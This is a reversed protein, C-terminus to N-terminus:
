NHEMFLYFDILTMYELLANLYISINDNYAKKNIRATRRWITDLHSQKETFYLFSPIKKQAPSPLDLLSLFRKPLPHSAMSAPLSIVDGTFSFAELSSGQSHFDTYAATCNAIGWYWFKTIIFFKYTFIIGIGFTIYRKM